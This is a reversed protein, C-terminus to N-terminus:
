QNVTLRKLSFIKMRKIHEGSKEPLFLLSNQPNKHKLRAIYGSINTFNSNQRIRMGQRAALRPVPNRGKASGKPSSDGCTVSLTNCDKEFAQTNDKKGEGDASREAVEGM